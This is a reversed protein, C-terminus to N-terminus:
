ILTTTDKLLLTLISAIIVGYILRQLWVSWGSLDNFTKLFEAKIEERGEKANEEVRELMQKIENKNELLSIATEKKHAEFRVEMNDQRLENRKVTDGMRDMREQMLQLESRKALSSKIMERMEGFDNRLSEINGSMRELKVELSEKERAM